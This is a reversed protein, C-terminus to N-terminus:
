EACRISVDGTLLCQCALRYKSGAYGLKTLFKSEEESVKGLFDRNQLIEIVCAGCSGARCGFPILNAEFYEFELDTLTSGYPLEFTLMNPEITIKPM